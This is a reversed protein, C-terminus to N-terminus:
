EASLATIAEEKAEEKAEQLAPLIDRIPRTQLTVGGISWTRGAKGVREFAKALLEPHATLIADHQARTLRFQTYSM